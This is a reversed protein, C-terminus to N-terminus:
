KLSRSIGDRRLGIDALMREDRMRLQRITRRYRIETAVTRMTRAVTTFLHRWARQRFERRLLSMDVPPMTM